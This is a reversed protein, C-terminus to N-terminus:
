WLCFFTGVFFYEDQFFSMAEDATMTEASLGMWKYHLDQGTNKRDHLGQAIHQAVFQATLNRRFPVDHCNRCLGLLTSIESQKFKTM